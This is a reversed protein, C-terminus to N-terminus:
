IAAHSVAAQPNEEIAAAARIWARDLDGRNRAADGIALGIDAMAAALLGFPQGQEMGGPDRDLQARVIDLQDPIASRHDILRATDGFAAVGCRPLMEEGVLSGGGHNRAKPKAVDQSRLVKGPDSQCFPM